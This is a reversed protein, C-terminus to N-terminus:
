PAGDYKIYFSQDSLGVLRCGYGTMPCALGALLRNMVMEVVTAAVPHRHITSLVLEVTEYSINTGPQQFIEDMIPIWQGARDDHKGAQEILNKADLGREERSIALALYKEALAEDRQKAEMLAAVMELKGM